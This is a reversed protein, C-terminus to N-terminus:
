RLARAGTLERFWTWTQEFVDSGPDDAPGDVRWDRPDTFRGDWIGRRTARAVSEEGPYGSRSVALGAAVMAAGLDDGDAACHALVRSFRDVGQPACTVDTNSLLRAM